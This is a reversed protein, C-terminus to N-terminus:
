GSTPWDFELKEAWSGRILDYHSAGKKFRLTPQGRVTTYEVKYYISNLEHTFFQGLRDANQRTYFYTLDLLRAKFKVISEEVDRLIVVAAHRQAETMGCIFDLADQDYANAAVSMLKRHITELEKPPNYDKHVAIHGSFTGFTVDRTEVGDKGRGKFGAPGYYDDNEESEDRIIETLTLEGGHHQKMRRLTEHVQPLTNRIKRYARVAELAIPKLSDLVTVKPAVLPLMALLYDEESDRKERWKREKEAEAQVDDNACCNGIFACFQLDPFWVLSGTLFRNPTCMPCPCHDAEPRKTGDITILHRLVRFRADKPIQNRYLSEILEPQATEKIRAVTEDIWVGSPRDKFTRWPLTKVESGKVGRSKRGGKTM